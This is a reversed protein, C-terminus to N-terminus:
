ASKRRNTTSVTSRVRARLSRAVKDLPEVRGAHLDELGKRLAETDYGQEIANYMKSFTEPHQVVLAPKGNVTLLIPLRSRDLEKLFAKANRQFDTLSHIDSPRFM